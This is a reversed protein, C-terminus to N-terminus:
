FTEWNDDAVAAKRPLAAAPVAQAPTFSAPANRSERRTRFVAVAQTLRSAQEELAAAAAASEEVLSANQQTVRDMEAVALGVQDIGRSQEDSASAIEGMIDTVRTVANVIEDMTEGASEVLTSGLEVRGVSDEILGKIERAAQASRQALNRVEGAVVAFGRGQEGARAAEVAANLALINTQFAIGDIVSIIDAIKQSSGAIDRMTQVVNDVVKGGKQATESASLALHSAQRANEANQKVTATLEEMSAATEELSAAQQETRSSLDNNGSSIESAGSYIADAGRRVDGVARVLEGQMHRLSDALQGMENTGHVEIHQELDGGAIHRISEVLRQLPAILVSKIGFWVSIIVALVVALVSIIIWVAMSYSGDNDEVAVDYLHDNQKLYENYQKEFGDQYGQTPQDFFENIKGAGLLQILEALAGHYIDYNRKIEAAAAESQRPDRPLGQYESWHAEAQKLSTSAIQMLDNVTSGSGIGTQDMMYRIGARNLTNRTQLLAVWSANLTSQQARITQLVTFNEKDHKLANFFLGGSTLQLLGFLGLVLLLSTVIKIRNLM